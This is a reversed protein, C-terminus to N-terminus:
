IQSELIVKLVRNKLKARIPRSGAIRMADM